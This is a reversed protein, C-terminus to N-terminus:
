EGEGKGELAEEIQAAQANTLRAQALDLEDQLNINDWRIEAEPPYGHLRLWMACIRRLAPELTRRYDELESTLIDTQQASMRETTSWSLGLLFPPVGLKAVIQELMQRVPVESDPIPNDAGIVRIDVGGVAIFDSVPAGPRMARSWEEAIQAAREKAPTRDTGGAPPQYTVAFRVNGVRDWNTGIARYIRALIGGTFPLGHLLPTGYRNGPEPDLATYFVLEPYPAPGGDPGARCIVTELPTAGERLELGELPANYLAAIDGGDPSLVMEGVATGYYLLQRLYGQLFASAGEQGANVPVTRLFEALLRQARADGCAVTFGGVLRCIKGVAADIVPISERLADCLRKEPGYPQAPWPEAFRGPATQVPSGGEARRKWLKM